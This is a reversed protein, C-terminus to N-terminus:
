QPHPRSARHVGAPPQGLRHARNALRTTRGLNLEGPAYLVVGNRAVVATVDAEDALEAIVRAPLEVPIAFEVVPGTHGPADADIVAVFEGRRRPSGVGTDLVLHTLAHATLDRQKGIPDEPCGDPVAEAFLAEVTSDLRAAM